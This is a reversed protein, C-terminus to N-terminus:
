LIMDLSKLLQDYTMHKRKAYNRYEPLFQKFRMQLNQASYPYKFNEVVSDFGEDLYVKYMPRLELIMKQIHDPNFRSNIKQAFSNRMKMKQDETLHGKGKVFDKPIIEDKAFYKLQGTKENRYVSKGLIANKGSMIWKKLQEDSLTRNGKIWGDPVENSFFLKSQKTLPDHYWHKGYAGNKDSSVKQGITESNYQAFEERAKQYEESQLIFDRLDKRFGNLTGKVMMNLACMTQYHFQDDHHIIWLYVHAMFHEKAFLQIKNEPIDLGGCSSPFIHHTEVKGPNEKSKVLQEIRRLQILQDYAKEAEEKTIM